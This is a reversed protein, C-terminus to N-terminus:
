TVEDNWYDRVAAQRQGGRDIETIVTDGYLPTQGAAVRAKNAEHTRSQWEKKTADFWDPKLILDLSSGIQPRDRMAQDQRAASVLKRLHAPQLYDTSSRRHTNVAQVCEDYRLDGLLGHLYAVDPASFTRKDGLSILTMLDTTQEPTV